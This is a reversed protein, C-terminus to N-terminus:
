ILSNSPPPPPPSPIEDNERIELLTFPYKLNRAAANQQNNATGPRPNTQAAANPRNQQQAATKAAKGSTETRTSTATTTVTTAGNPPAVVAALKYETRGDRVTILIRLASITTSFAGTDGAPGAIRQADNANQFFQPGQNKFSGEGRLYELLNQQQSSEFQGIAALADPRASNINSRQFDLLSVADVFRKWYDNPRGEEDYFVERVKEIAALENFSRLSRGPAEYPLTASDYNPSVSTTYIHNRKMWGLLADTLAEADAQQIEWNRFLNTLVPATARPLSIKGSEDEFVIEVKRDESPTYGAFGLPDGWGEAPSRLANGGVERFETLVGLTVELASYAEMRLRRNLADRQDVLLDVSAKEMFAMLAFTAFLLTIMVIVLVSGRRHSAQASALDNPQPSPFFNKM